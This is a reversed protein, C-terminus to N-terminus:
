PHDYGHTALHLRVLFHQVLANTKVPCIERSECKGKAHGWLMPLVYHCMVSMSMREEWKWSILIWHAANKERWHRCMFTYLLLIDSAGKKLALSPMSITAILLFLFSMQFLKCSDKKWHRLKVETKQGPLILLDLCRGRNYKIRADKYSITPALMLWSVVDIEM